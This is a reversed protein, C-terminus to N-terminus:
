NTRKLIEDIIMNLYTVYIALIIAFLGFSKYILWLGVVLGLLVNLFKALQLFFPKM